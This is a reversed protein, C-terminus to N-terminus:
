NEDIVDAKEISCPSKNKVQLEKIEKIWFGM